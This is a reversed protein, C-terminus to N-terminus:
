IESTFQWFLHFSDQRLMGNVAFHDQIIKRVRLGEERIGRSFVEGMEQVTACTRNLGSTGEEAKAGDTAAAAAKLPLDASPDVSRLALILLGFFTFIATAILFRHM